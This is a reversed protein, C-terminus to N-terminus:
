GLKPRLEGALYLSGTILLTDRPKLQKTAWALAAAPRAFTMIQAQPCYKACLQALESPPLTKRFGVQTPATCVITQPQLTQLQKIMAPSAKDALFGLVLHTPSTPKITAQYTQVTSAMKQPNHAGDLIITPKTAMLEFRAPQTTARLGRKIVTTSLDFHRAVTIALAANQVQHQGAVSLQYTDNKIKFTTKSLSIKVATPQTIHHVNTKNKKSVRAIVRQAVPDTTSTFVPATTIIGAKQEAIRAITHGLTDMHDFGIETIVAASKHRMANTADYTGGLGVEIIAWSVKEEAFYLFALATSAEFYSPCEGPYIKKFQNITTRLKTALRTFKQPSMPQGNIQWRECISTLHPSITLGTKFGAATFISSLFNCVSGKGSTGSVHILHPIKQDPRELLDLLRQTRDLFYQGRHPTDTFYNSTGRELSLLWTEAQKPSM